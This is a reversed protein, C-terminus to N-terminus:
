PRTWAVISMAKGKILFILM